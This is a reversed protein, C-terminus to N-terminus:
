QTPRLNRTHTTRLKHNQIKETHEKQTTLISVQQEAM